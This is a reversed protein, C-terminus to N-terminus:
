VILVSSASSILSNKSSLNIKVLSLDPMRLGFESTKLFTTSAILTLASSHTEIPSLNSISILGACAIPIFPM